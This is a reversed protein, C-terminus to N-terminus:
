LPAKPAISIELRKIEDRLQKKGEETIPRHIFSNLEKKLAEIKKEIAKIEAQKKRQLADFRKQGEM